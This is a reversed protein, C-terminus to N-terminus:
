TVKCVGVLPSQYVAGYRHRLSHWLPRATTDCLNVIVLAGPALKRPGYNTGPGAGFKAAEKGGEVYKWLTDIDLPMDRSDLSVCDFGLTEPDRLGVKLVKKDRMDLYLIKDLKAEEWIFASSAKSAELPLYSKVGHYRVLSIVSALDKPAYAIGAGGVLAKPDGKVLAADAVGARRIKEILGGAM